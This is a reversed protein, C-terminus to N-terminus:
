TQASNQVEHSVFSSVVKQTELRAFVEQSLTLFLVDKCLLVLFFYWYGHIKEHITKDKM